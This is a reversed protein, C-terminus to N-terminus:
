RLLLALVEQAQAGSVEKKLEELCEKMCHKDEANLRKYYAMAKLVNAASHQNIGDLKLVVRKFWRMSAEPQRWFEAWNNSLYTNILARVQNPSEWSFTPKESIIRIEEFVGPKELTALAMYYHLLVLHNNKALQLFSTIVESETNKKLDATLIAIKETLSQSKVFCENLNLDWASSFHELLKSNYKREEVKEPTLLYESCISLESPLLFDKLIEILEEKVQVYAKFFLSVSVDQNDEIIQNLSPFSLLIIKQSVDGARKLALCYAEKFDSSLGQEKKNTLEIVELSFLKTLAQSLLYFDSEHSLIHIMSQREDSYNVDICAAFGQNVSVWSGLPAKYEHVRIKESVLVDEQFVLNGDADRVNLPLVFEFPLAEPHNIPPMQELVVTFLGEKFTSNVKLRPTGHQRYWRFFQTLSKGSVEEMCDMFDELTVAMGDFKKLFHRVGQNYANQGILHALMRIIEAGKEYVTATYFNDVASYSQPQVAHSLPGSDESFQKTLIRSIDRARASSKENMDASFQQERFVTLGEKLSLQFWDRVTVRNGTWNHFYEHAIVDRVNIFDNDTSTEHSALVYKSNFINLGKNEMAGMNFDDVVVVMYRELDYLCGYNEEDWRMADKLSSIAFDCKDKHKPEVYFYIETIEGNSKEFRGEKVAFDGAVLAFLYCPKPFPDRWVVEHFGNKLLKREVLEGNSLLHPYKKKNATITVRYCSLVDPRDLFYTIRRFGEAECQTFLRGNSAYLGQLETNAGPNITTKIHLEFSSPVNSIILKGGLLRYDSSALPEGNIEITNLKTEEAGDLTLQSAGVAMEIQMCSDVTTATEDLNFHLHIEKITCVPKQYDTLCTETM